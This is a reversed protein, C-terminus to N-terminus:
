PSTAIVWNMGIGARKMPTRIGNGFANALVQPDATEYYDFIGNRFGLQVGGGSDNYVHQLEAFTPLRFGPAKQAVMQQADKGWGDSRAQGLTVTWLRLDSADQFVPLGSPTQGVVVLQGRASAAFGLVVTLAVCSLFIRTSM